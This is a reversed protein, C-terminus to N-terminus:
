NNEIFKNKVQLSNKDLFFFISHPTCERLVVSVICM